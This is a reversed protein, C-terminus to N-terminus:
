AFGLWFFGHVVRFWNRGAIDKRKQQCIKRWKETAVPLVSLARFLDSRRMM